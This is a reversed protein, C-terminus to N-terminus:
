DQWNESDIWQNSDNWYNSALIWLSTEPTVISEILPRIIKGIKLGFGIM